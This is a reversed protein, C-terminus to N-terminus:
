EVLPTDWRDIPMIEIGGIRGNPAYSLRMELMGTDYRARYVHVDDDGRPMRGFLAIARRTGLPQVIAQYEAQMETFDLKAMDTFDGHAAQGRAIADLLSGARDTMGPAADQIPLAPAQKLVPEVMGAIHRAILGPDSKDSNALVVVTLGAPMYRIIFTRFGQWSGGHRWITQGAAAEQFWGFGYPYTKGSAIGAPNAIAAWSRPQVIRGAAVGADWAAYDLASLYLSGDATSNATPSVWEANRAMGDRMEYGAARNPVVALEDIPRASNMGLPRFLRRTLLDGYYEGSVKRIVFGLVIYNTYSFRWRTGAAFNIDQRFIIDLLEDDSYDTRFEGNPTAPLGSTHNLLQRITVRKWSPPAKPLYRTVPDDLAIKGDEVLLMTAMATFQMGVAGTKFLTDPHVPIHHELNAFGYGQTRVVQGHRMVALSLGPIHQRAMEAGIYDDIPDAMAGSSVGLALFLASIRIMLRM